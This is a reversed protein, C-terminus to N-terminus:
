FSKITKDSLDLKKKIKSLLNLYLPHNPNRLLLCELYEKAESYYGLQYASNVLIFLINNDIPIQQIYENSLQFTLDWRKNKYNEKIKEREKFYFSSNLEIPNEKKAQFWLLSIDDKLTTQNLIFDFTSIIDYDNKELFELFLETRENLQNQYIIDDKGDSGSLFIDNKRLIIIQIGISEEQITSGIKYYYFKEKVFEAKYNRILIPTPHECNIFYVINNSTDALGMILSVMMSGQFTQFTKNLEIYLNKLWQEPYVNQEEKYYHNREISSKVLSSLLLSGIAGQISKGMADANIFFLYPKNKLYIESFNCFDGGIEKKRNRFEFDKKQKILFQYSFSENIKENNLNKELFSDLLLSTLFYDGDQQNKLDKIEKLTQKLEETRIEVIQELNENLIKISEYMEKLRLIIKNTFQSLFGIEDNSFIGAKTNFNGESLSYLTEEIQKLGEKINKALYYATHFIPYLCILSIIIFHLFPNKLLNTNGYYSLSMLSILMIMPMGVLSILSFLIKYFLNLPIKNNKIEYEKLFSNEIYKRTVNETILYHSIAEIPIISLFIPVGLFPILLLIFDWPFSDLGITCSIIILFYALLIGITWRGTILFAEFKPLNIIKNKLILKDEINSINKLKKYRLIIGGIFMLISATITSSILSIIAFITFKDLFSIIALTSFYMVAPIPVIHTFIELRITLEKFLKKRYSEFESM